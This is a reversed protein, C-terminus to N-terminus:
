KTIPPFNVTRPDLYQPAAAEYARAAEEWTDFMGRWVDKYRMEGSQVTINIKNNQAM